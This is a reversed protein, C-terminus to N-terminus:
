STPPQKKFTMKRLGRDGQEPKTRLTLMTAQHIQQLTNFKRDALSSQKATAPLNEHSHGAPQIRHHQKMDQSLEGFSMLPFQDHRMEIMLQAPSAAVRVLFQHLRRRCPQPQLKMNTTAIHFRERSFTSDGDLHRRPFQPVRKQRLNRPLQTAAGDSQSMM